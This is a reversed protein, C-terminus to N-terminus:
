PPSSEGCFAGGGKSTSGASAQTTQAVQGSTTCAPHAPTLSFPDHVRQDHDKKAGAVPREAESTKMRETKEETLTGLAAIVKFQTARSM